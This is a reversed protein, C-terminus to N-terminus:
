QPVGSQGPITGDPPAQGPPFRNAEHNKLGNLDVGIPIPPQGPIPRPMGPVMGRIPRQPMPQRPQVSPQRLTQSANPPIYAPRTGLQAPRASASPVAPSAGVKKQAAIEAKREDLTAPNYEALIDFSVRTSTSVAQLEGQSGNEANEGAIRPSVFRKSREMNRVMQVSPERAGSVRLKLTLKGDKGRAPEIATVQVGAPLVRELDEMAATWSFTKEEFLGNLFESQTLVRANDPQQMQRQYGVDEQQVQAIQKDLTAEQAAMRQAADHFHWLGLGLGVLVVALVAMGIRLRKIAPGQDAYPRTALNLTIKM